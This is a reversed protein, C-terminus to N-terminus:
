ASVASWEVSGDARVEPVWRIPLLEDARLPYREYGSTTDRGRWWNGSEDRWYCWGFAFYWAGPRLLRITDLTEAWRYDEVDHGGSM